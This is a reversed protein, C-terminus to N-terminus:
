ISQDDDSDSDSELTQLTDLLNQLRQKQLEVHVMREIILRQESEIQKIELLKDDQTNCKQLSEQYKSTENNILVAM